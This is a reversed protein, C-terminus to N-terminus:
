HLTENELPKEPSSYPDKLPECNSTKPSQTKPTRNSQPKIQLITPHLSPKLDLFRRGVDFNLRRWFEFEASGHMVSLASLKPLCQLHRGM